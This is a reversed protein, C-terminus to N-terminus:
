SPRLLVIAGKLAEERGRAERLEGRLREAEGAAEELLEDKAELMEEYLSVIQDQCSRIHEHRRREAALESVTHKVLMPLAITWWHVGGIKVGTRTLIDNLKWAATAGIKEILHSPMVDGEQFLTIAKEYINVTQQWYKEADRRDQDHRKEAARRNQDHREYLAMIPDGAADPSADLPPPAAPEDRHEDVEAEPLLSELETFGIYVEEDALHLDYDLLQDLLLLKPELLSQLEPKEVAELRLAAREADAGARMAGIKERVSQAQRDLRKGVTLALPKDLAVTAGRADATTWALLRLAANASLAPSEARVAAVADSLVVLDKDTLEYLLRPEGSPPHTGEKSAKIRRALQQLQELGPPPRAPADTFFAGCACPPTFLVPPLLLHACPYSRLRTAGDSMNDAIHEGHVAGDDSGAERGAAAARKRKGGAQPGAAAGSSGGASRGRGAYELGAGDAGIQAAGRRAAGRTSREAAAAEPAPFPAKGSM